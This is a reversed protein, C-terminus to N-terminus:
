AESVLTDAALKGFVVTDVVANGGLRNAGHVGGTVEGAAYLHELKNGDPDMVHGATDITVGGMTHHICAQRPTAVWPGNELKTSFLTRGLDDNGSDVTENFTDVTKQLADADMGLKEALGDLTDDWIVYENDVLYDFTFGDASRWEPDHIDKYGAGDGSELMYFMADPQQLVALCIKDRRGDEQVFREGNKNIFVIQDTGNVDRPPYKTLQGDKVNGLYLLQIQDMDTTSTGIKEAMVLGEGQSCSFRNTTATKSLDPWKGTTNNEQVMKANASFGGTSLVVGDTATLTIEQGTHNDTAKVGTVTTGDVIFETATCETYIEILDAYNDLQVGYTSILGTGMPMLSTHTRQWLSGAGQGITDAFKMGADELWQLGDYANYTLVKVLEPNAVMDGNIWTQLAYWEKTDFLDTRGASKYEEWQEKVPKQMEELAAQKDADDSTLELAAEITSKVPDSMEVEAQMEPDPCNYIAGCVLTDGGCEGNKEVVVVKKGQQAAVIAAVLGAGGGGVVVVDATADERKPYSVEGQFDKPDGGAQEICDQVGALIAASTISAGTVMDVAVSNNEAILEPLLDVPAQGITTIPNDDIDHLTGGIGATESAGEVEVESIKGDAFTVSVTIEDNMGTQTSTYTGDKVDADSAASETALAGRSGLGLAGLGAAALMGGVVQRRSIRPNIPITRSVKM